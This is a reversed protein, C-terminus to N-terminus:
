EIQPISRSKLVILRDYKWLGISGKCYSKSLIGLIHMGVLEWIEVEKCSGMM